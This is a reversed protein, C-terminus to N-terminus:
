ERVRELLRVADWPAHGRADNDFYVHVDQGTALWARCHEAWADLTRDAYRSAYLESHGHLRVYRFSATDRDFAPWRGPSDSHVLAVDHERLLSAAEDSSFSPHRPELAHRLPHDPHDTELLTREPAIRDDHRAALRAAAGATRPLAALFPELRSPEFRMRAPLQWLLVDLRTGLALVGSALLNALGAEPNRLQQMHTLFRSGKVAFAHDAPTADRWAAYSTPRQLRYFSANVETGTTRASLYALEDRQRLGDPYFDGRWSAYSWGSTGVLLRSM